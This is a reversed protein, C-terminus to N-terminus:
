EKDNLWSVAGHLERENKFAEEREKYAEQSYDILGMNHLERRRRTISESRPLVRINEELPLDDRWGKHRWVAAVLSADDNQVGPHTSIVRLVTQQLSTLKM